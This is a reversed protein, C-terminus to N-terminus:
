LSATSFVWVLTGANQKLMSCVPTGACKIQLFVGNWLELTRNGDPPNLKDVGHRIFLLFPVLLLIELGRHRM